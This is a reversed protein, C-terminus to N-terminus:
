RQALLKFLSLVVEIRNLCTIDKLFSHSTMQLIYQKIDHDGTQVGKIRTDTDILIASVEAM